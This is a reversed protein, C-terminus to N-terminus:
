PNLNHIVESERSCFNRHTYALHLKSMFGSNRIIDNAFLGAVISIIFLPIAHIIGIRRGIIEKVLRPLIFGDAREYKMCYVLFHVLYAIWFGYYWLVILTSGILFVM